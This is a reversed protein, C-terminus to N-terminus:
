SAVEATSAPTRLDAPLTPETLVRRLALDGLLPGLLRVGAAAASAHTCWRPDALFGLIARAGRDDVLLWRRLYALIEDEDTGSEYLMLAADQRVPRLLEMAARLQQFLDGDVRVGFDAYIEQAWRGWCAGIVARVGLEALGESVVARPGHVPRLALEPLGDVHCSETHHGPYAEHAVLHPLRRARVGRDTNIRVVSRLDGLNEHLAGWRRGTVLEIRVSEQAPLGVVARTHERLSRAFARALPVVRAAPIVPDVAHLAGVLDRRAGLANALERHARHYEDPEGFGVAVQHYREVRTRFPVSRGDLLEGLCEWAVLQADLHRRLDAPLEVSRLTRRLWRAAHVLRCPEFTPEAAARRRLVAPAGRPDVCGPALAELRLGLLLHDTLFRRADM